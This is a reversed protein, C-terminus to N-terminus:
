AKPDDIELKQRKSGSEMKPMLHDVGKGPHAVLAGSIDGFWNPNSLYWQKTKGLGETFDVKRTWGLEELTTSNIHYRFDNFARDIVYTIYKDSEKEKDFHKILTNLVDKNSIEFQTGINYIEGLKGKHLVVDFATCVDDVYLFSRLSSGDGHLPCPKDKNLLLIFKPILKEPYQKPGYVNNGRTIITPLNFSHRYSRVMFEAGAKTAAYPNTPNLAADEHKAVGDMTSEGYVEDTSVHIFRRIQPSYARSLELLMHTGMVNSQTFAISNAFSNDVHTEAAFHMITDIKFSSFVHSVLDKSCIDGQVFTFNPNNIIEEFNKPTGCYSLKDLCVISVDPYKKVLYCLVNSGIFGAGGTLLISKPKYGNM